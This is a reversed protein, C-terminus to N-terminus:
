KFAAGAQEIAALLPAVDARVNIADLKKQEAKL